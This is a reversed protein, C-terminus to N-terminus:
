QHGFNSGTRNARMSLGSLWTAQRRIAGIAAVRRELFREAHRGGIDDVHHLVGAQAAAAPRPKRAPQLPREQRLIM